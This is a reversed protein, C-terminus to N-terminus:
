RFRHFFKQIGNRTLQNDALIAESDPQPDSIEMLKVKGKGDTIVAKM